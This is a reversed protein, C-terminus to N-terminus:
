RYVTNFIESWHTGEDCFGGGFVRNVLYLFKNDSTVMWPQLIDLPYFSMYSEPLERGNYVWTGSPFLMYEEGNRFTFRESFAVDPVMDSYLKGDLMYEFDGMGIGTLEGEDFFRSGPFSFPKLVVENVYERVVPRQSIDDYAVPKSVAVVYVPEYVELTSNMKVVRKDDGVAVFELNYRGNLASPSVISVAPNDANLSIRLNEAVTGVQSCEGYVGSASYVMSNFASPATAFDIPVSDSINNLGPVIKVDAVSSERVVLQVREEVDERGDIALTINYVGDPYGLSEDVSVLVRNGACVEVHGELAPDLSIKVSIDAAHEPTVTCEFDYYFHNYATCMKEEVVLALKRIDLEYVASASGASATVACTGPTMAKVTFGKSDSDIIQANDNDLALLVEMDSPSLHDYEVRAVEGDYMVRGKEGFAIHPNMVIVRCTDSIRTGDCSEAIVLCEGEGVSLVNGTEDVSAVLSDTSRFSLRKDAADAPLVVTELKLTGGTGIFKHVRPNVAVSTVLNSIGSHDVRWTNEDVAGDGRFNVTVTQLTNRVVDYNSTMDSGLYFRYLIEGKKRPSSYSAEMEVYSCIKSYISGNPWVKRTYDDNGPLLTGQMNEYQYFAIGQQLNEKSIGSISVGDVSHMPDVIRSSGFLKVRDPVNKLSIRKVDIGVDSNLASYDARIVIKSVCREMSINVVAGNHLMQPSSKGCMLVRQEDVEEDLSVIHQLADLELVNAVQLKKGANAVSYLTYEEGKRINAGIKYKDAGNNGSLYMDAVVDGRDNVIFLNIDSPSSTSKVSMGVLSYQVFFDIHGEGGASDPEEALRVDKACNFCLLCSIIMATLIEKKM